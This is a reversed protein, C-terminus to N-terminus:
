VVLDGSFRVAEWDAVKVVEERRVNETFAGFEDAVGAKKIEYDTWGDGLVVTKGSLKLSQIAKVKGQEQCLYSEPDVGIIDGQQNFVFRNALIHERKLGLENAVPEIVETFGGSLVWV